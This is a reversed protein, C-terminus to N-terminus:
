SVMPEIRRGEVNVSYEKFLALHQNLLGISSWTKGKPGFRPYMGGSSFLGDSRRRIKYAFVPM